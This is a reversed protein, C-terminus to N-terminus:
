YHKNFFYVTLIFGYLLCEGDELACMENDKCAHPIEIIIGGGLCKIIASCDSNM